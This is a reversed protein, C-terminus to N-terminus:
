HPTGASFCAPYTQRAAPRGSAFVVISDSFQLVEINSLTDSGDAGATSVQTATITSYSGRAASHVAMDAGAGGDIIDNGAGGTITDSGGGGNLTDIGGAGNLTDIGGAGDLFNNFGDGTITDANNSGSVTNVTGLAVQDTGISAGMATGGALDVTVSTGSSSYLVRTNGNGTINDDGLLGEFSNFTGFSGAITVGTFGAAYYIDDFTTGTASNVGVFTDSGVSANGSATGAQLNITVGAVTAGSYIIRTSGNGTIADNGALGEFQNFTGNNGVNFNAPNLGITGFNTAVYTDNFATGQIGEISRLTDSGITTDGVVSGTTMNVVIGSTTLGNNNYSAIDFGGRGDIQDDGSWGEFFETFATAGSGLLTDNFSSGRVQSIGNISDTGVSDDGIATHAIL